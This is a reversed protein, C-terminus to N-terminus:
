WTKSGATGPSIESAYHKITPCKRWIIGNRPCTKAKNVQSGLNNTNSAAQSSDKEITQISRMWFPKRAAKARHWSVWFAVGINCVTSM